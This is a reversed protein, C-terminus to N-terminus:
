QGKVFEEIARNVQDPKEMMVMHGADEVLVMQSDEVAKNLYASYKPPTLTDEGGCIILAPIALSSISDMVNFHDCASFDKYIVDARCKMTEEFALAKLSPASKNSFAFEVISRVTTEKDREIGELIDPLVKLKVGTGILILGKVAAPHSLALSMAIAGGLSHGAVYVAGLSLEDIMGHVIDGYEEVSEYGNGPSEGHGPLDLAIVEMSSKLYDTQNHWMSANWGSGHILIIPQGRGSREIHLNLLAEGGTDDGIRGIPKWV